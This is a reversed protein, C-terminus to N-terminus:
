PCGHQHIRFGGAHDVHDAGIAGLGRRFAEGAAAGDVDRPPQVEIAVVIHPDPVELENCPTTSIAPTSVFPWGGPVFVPSTMWTKLLPEIWNSVSTDM